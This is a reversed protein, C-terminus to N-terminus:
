SPVSDATSAGFFHFFTGLWVDGVFEWPRLGETLVSVATRGTFAEEVSCFGNAPPFETYKYFHFFVDLVIIAAFQLYELRSWPAPQVCGARTRDGAALGLSWICM